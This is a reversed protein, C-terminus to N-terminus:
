RRNKRLSLTYERDADMLKDYLEKLQRAEAKGKVPIGAAMIYKGSGRPDNRVDLKRKLDDYANKIAMYKEKPTPPVTSKGTSWDIGKKLLKRRAEHAGENDLPDQAKKLLEDMNWKNKSGWTVGKRSLSQVPSNSGRGGM